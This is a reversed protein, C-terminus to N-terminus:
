KSFFKMGPMLKAAAGLSQSALGVIRGASGFRRDLEYQYGMYSNRTRRLDNGLGISELLDFKNRLSADAYKRYLSGYEPTSLVEPRWEGLNLENVHRKGGFKAPYLPYSFPHSFWNDGTSYGLNILNLGDAMTKIEAQKTRERAQDIGELAATAQYIAPISSLVKGVRSLITDIKKSGSYAQLDPASYSVGDKSYMLNRNFGAAEYAAATDGISQLNRQYEEEAMQRNFENQERVQSKGTLDDYLNKIASEMDPSDSGSLNSVGNNVMGEVSKRGFGKILNYTDLAFDGPNLLMNAWKGKGTASNYDQVLAGVPNIFYKWWKAM